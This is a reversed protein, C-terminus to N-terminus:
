VRPRATPVADRLPAHAFGAMGDEISVEARFGLLEAARGPDAVVHRVDGPRFQGTVVPAAGGHLGALLDAIGGITCPRGSCINLPHFGPLEQGVAAVNAAAVDHV